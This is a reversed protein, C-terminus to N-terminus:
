LHRFVEQKKKADEYRDAQASNLDGGIINRKTADRTLQTRAVLREMALMDENTAIYIRIIEWSDKPDMGKVEVAIMEVDEDIWL